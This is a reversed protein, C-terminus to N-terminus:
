QALWAAAEERYRSIGKYDAMDQPLEALVAAFRSRWAPVRALESLPLLYSRILFLVAGSEALRVLHQVEVRLHLRRALEAAGDALVLRRDRGWEPYTETSTDLKHDVTMTWNTRRYADGPQLRMLFQHARNIVRNEHVRPVPGHVELFSMGIDFALSWDAAFTVLGADAFLDGERQDLLVLDEQVQAGIYRLPDAPLSSEDGARFAQEIGLLSNTWLWGSDPTRQLSMTQPHTRALERMLTLMTDWCAARMHPLVTCRSPDETLIRQRLALEARYDEDIDLINEGWAGAATAVRQRAPEVNTSYRYSDAPFPFPFRAIRAPLTSTTM